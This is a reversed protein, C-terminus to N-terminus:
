KYSGYRMWLCICAIDGYKNIFEIHMFSMDSHSCTTQWASAFSTVM